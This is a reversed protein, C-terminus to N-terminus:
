EDAGGKDSPETLSVPKRLTSRSCPITVEYGMSVLLHYNKMFDDSVHKMAIKLIANRDEPSLAAFKKEYCLDSGRIGISSSM